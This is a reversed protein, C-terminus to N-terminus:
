KCRKGGSRPKAIVAEENFIVNDLKTTDGTIKAEYVGPEKEKAQIVNTKLEYEVDQALKVLENISGENQVHKNKKFEENIKNRVTSLSREDGDFTKSAVRHLSKFTSLVRQKVSM